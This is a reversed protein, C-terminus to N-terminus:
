PMTGKNEYGYSRIIARAKDSKLHRMWAQAAANDRGRVLGVADQQLPTHWDAPVIWASGERVKGDLWVQSLAVFGLPANQTAVFQYAQGISEGQVVRSQLASWVGMRQMVEQAAAGYPALKPNAMALKQFKGSRLVQGQGDVWDPQQSWLVLRGIAYTFRSDPVALGEQVLKLPTEDDAALLVDYPAGHRIQAYFHGTSGLSLRVKHGTEQEFAQAIRQVPAAFNAAVAVAVEGAQACFALGCLIGARLFSHTIRMKAIGFYFLSHLM